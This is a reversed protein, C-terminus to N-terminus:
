SKPWEEETNQARRALTRCAEAVALSAQNLAQVQEIDLEGLELLPLAASIEAMAAMLSRMDPDRRLDFLEGASNPEQGLLAPSFDGWVEVANRVGKPDRRTSLLDTRLADLLESAPPDPGLWRQQMAVYKGLDHKLRQLHSALSARATPEEPLPVM